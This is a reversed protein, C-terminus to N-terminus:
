LGRLLLAAAMGFGIAVIARRVALEGVRRAAGAGLVGGAIAGAAMLLVDTWVVLGSVVFYGAAIGNIFLALLNKLANMQYINTYGVLSLAALMLIGIGAGFYGGYLGVLAQYAVLGWTWKHESSSSRAWMFRHKIRDQVMLLLTAFLVLVPVLRDFVATPTYRMLVAGSLGGVFSPVATAVLARDWPPLDRRYGWVSGVAGPWLAVTSTANAVISPLGLWVLVPFTLLSGGGAVSNIAGAVFAVGFVLVAHV